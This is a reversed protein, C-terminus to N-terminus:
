VETCNQIFETSKTNKNGLNPDTNCIYKAKQKMNPKYSCPITSFPKDKTPAGLPLGDSNNEGGLWDCQYYTSKPYTTGFSPKPEDGWSYLMPDRDKLEYSPNIGKKNYPISGLKWVNLQPNINLTDGPEQININIEEEVPAKKNDCKSPCTYEPINDELVKQAYSQMAVQINQIKKAVNYSSYHNLVSFYIILGFILIMFLSMGIFTNFNIIKRNYLVTLICFILFLFILYQLIIINKEKNMIVENYQIILQEKNQISGDIQVIKSYNENFKKDYSLLLENTTGILNESM